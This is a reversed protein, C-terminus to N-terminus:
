QNFKGIMRLIYVANEMGVAGARDLDGNPNLGAAELRASLHLVLLLDSM